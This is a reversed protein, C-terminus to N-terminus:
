LFASNIQDDIFWEPHFLDYFQNPIPHCQSIPGFFHNLMGTPIILNLGAVVVKGWNTKREITDDFTRGKGKILM